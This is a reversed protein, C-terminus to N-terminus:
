ARAARSTGRMAITKRRLTFERLEHMVVWRRAARLSQQRCIVAANGARSVEYCRSLVAGDPDFTEVRVITYGFVPKEERRAVRM